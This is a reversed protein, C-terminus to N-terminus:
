VLETNISLWLGWLRLIILFLHENTEISIISQKIVLERNEVMIIGNM